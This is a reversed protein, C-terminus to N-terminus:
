RSEVRDTPAPMRPTPVFPTQALAGLAAGIRARESLLHNFQADCGSIPTPYASIEAAIAQQATQLSDIAATLHTEFSDPM